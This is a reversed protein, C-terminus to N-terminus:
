RFLYRNRNIERLDAETNFNSDFLRMQQQPDDLRIDRLLRPSMTTFFGTLVRNAYYDRVFNILKIARGTLRDLSSDCLYSVESQMCNQLNQTNQTNM